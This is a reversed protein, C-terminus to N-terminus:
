RRGCTSTNVCSSPRCGCARSRTFVRGRTGHVTTDGDDLEGPRNVLTTATTMGSLGAVVCIVGAAVMLSLPDVALEVRGPYRTTAGDSVIEAVGAGGTMASAYPSRM